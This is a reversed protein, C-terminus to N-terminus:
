YNLPSLVIGACWMVFLFFIVRLHGSAMMNALAVVIQAARSEAVSLTAPEIVGAAQSMLTVGPVASKLVFKVWGEEAFHKKLVKSPEM